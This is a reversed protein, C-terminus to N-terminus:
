KLISRVLRFGFTDNGYDPFSDNRSSVSACDAGINWNGGRFVRTHHPSSAPGVPDTEEGTSITGEWDYCWEDVNGSMDYIGLRNADKKGVEHTGWGSANYTEIGTRTTGSKNNFSCWGVADLGSNKDM